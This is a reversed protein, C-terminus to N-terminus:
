EKVWRVTTNIKENRISTIYMGSQLSEISLPLSLDSTIMDSMVLRGDLSYTNITYTAPPLGSIDLHDKAPNPRVTLSLDNQLQNLSTTTSSYGLKVAWFDRQGYGPDLKVNSIGAYATASILMTSDNIMTFSNPRDGKNTGIIKYTLLSGATDLSMIVIDKDGYSPNTFTGNSLSPIEGLAFFGGQPNLIIDCFLDDGTTGYKKEWILNGSTDMKMIWFDYGLPTSIGNTPIYQLGFLYYYNDKEIVKSLASWGLCGFRKDWIKNGNKDVKFVLADIFGSPSIPSTTINGGIGSETAGYILYNSDNLVTLVSGKLNLTTYENGMGGFVRDWQKNGLCDLKVAWFDFGAQFPTQNPYYFALQTKDFGHVGNSVGSLILGGDLSQKTICDKDCGVSGLRIENIKNGLSDLFLLIYDRDGRITSTLSCSSDGATEGAILIGHRFPIISTAQEINSTTGYTKDWKKNLSDDFAVVWFDRPNSLSDCPPETKDQQAYISFCNGAIVNTQNLRAMAYGEDTEITGFCHDDIYNFSQANSNLVTILFLLILYFIKM